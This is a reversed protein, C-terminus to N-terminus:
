CRAAWSRGGDSSCQLGGAANKYPGVLLNGSPLVIVTLVGADLATGAGLRTWTNGVDHSVFLGGASGNPRLELLAVYVAGHALHFIRTANYIVGFGLAMLAYIGGAVVGNVLLQPVTANMLAEAQRTTGARLVRYGANQLNLALVEQLEPDDEVVLITNDM